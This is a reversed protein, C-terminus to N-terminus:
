SAALLSAEWASIRCETSGTIFLKETDRSPSEVFQVVFEFETATAGYYFNRGVVSDRTFEGFDFDGVIFSELLFSGYDRGNESLYCVGYEFFSSLYRVFVSDFVRYTYRLCQDGPLSM